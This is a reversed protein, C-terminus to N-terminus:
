RKEKTLDVDITFERKDPVCSHDNCTMYEIIGTVIVKPTNLIIKRKFLVQGSYWTINMEYIDDYFTYAKGHETIAGDLRYDNKQDDSFLFTTPFPGGPKLNHSYLHWGPRIIAHFVLFAENEGIPEIKFSWIVHQQSQASSTIFQGVGILLYHFLLLKM